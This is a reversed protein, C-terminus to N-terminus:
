CVCLSVDDDCVFCCPFCLSVSCHGELPFLSFRNVYLFQTAFDNRFINLNSLSIECINKTLSSILDKGFLIIVQLAM